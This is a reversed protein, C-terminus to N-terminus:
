VPETAAILPQDEEPACADGDFEEDDLYPEVRRGLASIVKGSILGSGAALMITILIGTLQAGFNIGSVVFLAAIGGLLGPLGHLYLVGCTDVKRTLNTLRSQIIAFGFTSVVGALIGIAFAVGPVALDCTSGIAVGGALTANAIDAAAIKGRLRVSAFYTAITSGCLALIVNVATRPVDAPAVLAACFSPWFVWLVMSGLLSYRDSTDDCEIPAEYETLTTMSAAVGLGFIAGFAHIVISGGTDVVKGSILGLGGNLVIWENLAYFPVFLIGLLMYQGMKLRGLVAGACILLSAAAFEALIMNDIVGGSSGIGGFSEKLFYLPISVSVLLYTATLASRGYKKVFVMLFGFGVLLMAMIHIAREYKQVDSLAALTSGATEAASVTGCVCFMLAAALLVNKISNKM